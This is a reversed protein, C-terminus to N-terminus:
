HLGAPLGPCRPPARLDRARICSALPNPARRGPELALTHWFPTSVDPEPPPWRAVERGLLGAQPEPRRWWCSSPRGLWGPAPPQAKIGDPRRLGPFARPPSRLGRPSPADPARAGSPGRARSDEVGRSGASDERGPSPRASM